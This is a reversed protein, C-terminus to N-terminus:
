QLYLPPVCATVFGNGRPRDAVPRARWTCQPYVLTPPAHGLDGVLVALFPSRFGHGKAATGPPRSHDLALRSRSAPSLLSRNLGAPSLVARGLGRLRRVPLSFVQLRFCVQRDPHLRFCAPVDAAACAVPSSLIALFGQPRFCSPERPVCGKSRIRYLLRAFVGLGTQM